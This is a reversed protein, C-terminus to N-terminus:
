WHLQGGEQVRVSVQARVGASVKSDSVGKCEACSDKTEEGGVGNSVCSDVGSAGDGICSDEMGCHCKCVSTSASVKSDSVGKREACGGDVAALAAMWKVRVTV